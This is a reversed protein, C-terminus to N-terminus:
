PRTPWLTASQFVWRRGSFGPEGKQGMPLVKWHTMVPPSPTYTLEVSAKGPFFWAGVEATVKVQSPTVLRAAILNVWERLTKVQAFFGDRWRSQWLADTEKAALRESEQQIVDLEAPIIIMCQPSQRSGRSVMMALEDSVRELGRGM